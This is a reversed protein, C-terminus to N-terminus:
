LALANIRKRCLRIQHQLGERGFVGVHQLLQQGGGVVRLLAGAQAAFGGGVKRALQRLAFGFPAQGPGGAAAPLVQSGRQLARQVAAALQRGPLAVQGGGSRQLLPADGALPGAGERLGM